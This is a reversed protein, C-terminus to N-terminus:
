RSIPASPLSDIIELDPLNAYVADYSSFKELVEIVLSLPEPWIGQIDCEGPVSLPFALRELPPSFQAEVGEKNGRADMRYWGHEKLWVANLGHLSFPPRDDSITLRQYCLGAPIRNARLLAALLHSKAYCYGTGHELVASAKVTVPNLKFDNSHRISDRVFLFCSRAIEEDTRCNEALERAKKRIAPHEWDIYRSPTLYQQM